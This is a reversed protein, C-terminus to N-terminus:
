HKIIKKSYIKSGTQITLLYIGNSLTYTEIENMGQTLPQSTTQRGLLDTLQYAGPESSKWDVFFKDLFPNPYMQFQQDPTEENETILYLFDPSTATCGNTTVEVKYVGYELTNYIISQSIGDTIAVGNRFWQYSDGISATLDTSTASISADPCASLSYKFLTGGSASGGAQTMGYLSGALLLLAGRPNSGNIADDFDLLKTYNTGDSHIKFVTGFNTAGGTSTMGYLTSGDLVLTGYPNSGDFIDVGSFNQLKVYGSGDPRIKFITGGGMGGLQTMGYLFAGDSILSGYPTSGDGSSAGFSYITTFGTGDPKLKFISGSNSNAGGNRGMGYLFTGDYFLDGFPQYGTGAFQFESLITYGTGDLKIKFIIGDDSGGESTMGYLFTGDSILSGYARDGDSGDFEKLTTFGSGDPLIKFITGSNSSGGSYTMGFLSTGDYFLSGQPNSGNGSGNFDQLTIYGSGDPKIKFITGNNSAGGGATMGYLFNGDSALSGYPSNGALSFDYLKNFGTGDPKIKFITGLNSNGGSETMGYLFTGDSILSGYPADGDTTGSLSRLNVFGTGDTKIKFITGYDNGYYSALGFLFGGELILSGYPESGDSSGQMTHLNVFGTGDPKIKFIIGDDDFLGAGGHSTLGYLFTGDSLLSGYPNSGSASGVFDFLKTHTNDIPSIKFLSGLDNTGGSSTLGYLFGGELTLSGAPESGNSIGKFELMTAFGTGDPKIKFITGFSFEGGGYTMGYLFTGDSILDGNPYSGNINGNFDLLKNYGSGDLKIKFITGLDNTGGTSTMGYLFGGESMLSGYPYSGKSIGDFDLLTAYGTGDPKIKFITGLDNAGGGSTMGYLFTGDSILSGNPHSGPSNGLDFLKTYQGLATFSVIQFNFLLLYLVIWLNKKSRNIFLMKLKSKIKM